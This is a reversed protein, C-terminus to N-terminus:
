KMKSAMTQDTKRSLSKKRGSQYRQIGKMRKGRSISTTTDKLGTSSENGLAILDETESSSKAARRSVDPRFVFTNFAFNTVVCIDVLFQYKDFQGNIYQM